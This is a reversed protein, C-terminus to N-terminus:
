AFFPSLEYMSHLLSLVAQIAPDNGFGHKSWRNLYKEAEVLEKLSSEFLHHPISVKKMELHTVPFLQAAEFHAIGTQVILENLGKVEEFARAVNEREKEGEEETSGGNTRRGDGLRKAGALMEVVTEMIERAGKGKRGGELVGYSLIGPVFLERLDQLVLRFVIKTELIPPFQCTFLYSRPSLIDFLFSSATELALDLLEFYLFPHLSTM